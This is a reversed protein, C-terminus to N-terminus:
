WRGGVGKGVSNVKIRVRGEKDETGFTHRIQWTGSKVGLHWGRRSDTLEKSKKNQNLIRRKCVGCKCCIRKQGQAARLMRRKFKRILKTEGSLSYPCRYNKMPM